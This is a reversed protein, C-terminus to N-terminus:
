ICRGVGWMALDEEEERQRAREEVGDLCLVSSVTRKRAHGRGVGPKVQGEAGFEDYREEEGDEWGGLVGGEGEGEEVSAPTLPAEELSLPPSPILRSVVSSRPSDDDDSRYGLRLDDSSLRRPPARNPPKPFLTMDPEFFSSPPRDTDATKPRPITPTPPSLTEKRMSARKHRMLSLLKEEEPSVAMMRSLRSRPSSDSPHSPATPTSPPRTPDTHTTTTTTKKRLPSPHSSPHLPHHDRIMDPPWYAPTSHQDTPQGHKRPLTPSQQPSTVSPKHPPPSAARQNSNGELPHQQTTSPKPDAPRTPRNPVKTTVTRRRQRSNRRIRTTPRAETESDDSSSLALVSELQLDSHKIKSVHVVNPQQAEHGPNMATNAKAALPMAQDSPKSQPQPKTPSVQSTMTRVSSSSQDSLDHSSNLSSRDGRIFMQLTTQEGMTDFKDELEADDLWNEVDKAPQLFQSALPLAPSRQNEDAQVYLKRGRATTEPPNTVKIIRRGTWSRLGLPRLSNNESNVVMVSTATEIKLHSDLPRESPKFQPFFATLDVHTIKRQAIEPKKKPVHKKLRSREASDQFTTYRLPSVVPPCDKRLAMDRASSASTQQSIALPSVAPDYHSDITSASHKRRVSRDTSSSTMSINDAQVHVPMYAKAREADGAKRYARSTNFRREAITISLASCKKRLRRGTHCRGLGEPQQTVGGTESPGLLEEAKSMSGFAPSSPGSIPTRQNTTSRENKESKSGQHVSLFSFKPIRTM